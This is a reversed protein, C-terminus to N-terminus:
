DPHGPRPGASVLSRARAVEHQHSESEFTRIADAVLARAEDSRGDRCLLEHLDLVARLELAGAKQAAAKELARRLSSEASQVDGRRVLLEARVRDIEPEWMREARADAEEQAFALLRWAEDDDELLIRAQACMVPM